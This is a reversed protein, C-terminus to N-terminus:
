DDVAQAAVVRKVSVGEADDMVATASVVDDVALVAVIKQKAIGAQDGIMSLASFIDQVAAILMQITVSASDVEKHGVHVHEDTIRVLHEDSRLASIVDEGYAARARTDGSEQQAIGPRHLVM